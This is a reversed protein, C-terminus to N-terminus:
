SVIFRLPKVGYPGDFAASSDILMMQACYNSPVPTVSFTRRGPPAVSVPMIGSESVADWRLLSMSGAIM